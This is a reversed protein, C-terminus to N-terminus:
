NLCLVTFFSYFVLVKQCIIGNKQHLMLLFRFLIQTKAKKEAQIKVNLLLRFLVTFIFAFLLVLLILSLHKYLGTYVFVCERNLGCREEDDM